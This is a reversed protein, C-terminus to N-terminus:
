NIYKKLDQRLIKLAKTIHAEVTKISINKEKAIEPYTYGNMRSLCFVDRVKPPLNEIIIQIKQYIEENLDNSHEEHIDEIEFSLEDLYIFKNKKKRYYDIIKNKLIRVIYSEMYKKEPKIDDLKSWFKSFTEQLIAACEERDSISKFAISFLRSYYKDFFSSFAKQNKGKLQVWFYDENKKM